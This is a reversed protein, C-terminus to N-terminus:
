TQDDFRINRIESEINLFAEVLEPDYHTGSWLRIRNIAENHTLPDAGDNTTRFIDYGNVIALIRAEIPINTTMLRDPYGKGDWREHHSRCMNYAYKLFRNDSVVDMVKKIAEAGLVTHAHNFEKEQISLDGMDALCRDTLCIKGVDHMKSAFILIQADTEQLPFQRSKILSDLFVSMYKEVRTCHESIMFSRNSMLSTFMEVIAFELEVINHIKETLAKQLQDNVKEKHKTEDIVRIHTDIRKRLLTATFPKKIYDVAGLSYGEIETTIDEQATLFVVPIHSLKESNKMQSIVYFGNIDPMDVDLLVVDPPEPMEELFELAIKGSSVPIIEYLDELAKKAMILNTMNDDVIMVKHM